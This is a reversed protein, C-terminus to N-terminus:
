YDGMSTQMMRKHLDLKHYFRLVESNAKVCSKEFDLVRLGDLCKARSLAVYSQGCEFVRSLSIEVCDLTMGQSKHISIAWALKLPIQKRTSINGGSFKFSWRIPKIEEEMGCRFKVIPYGDNDKQYGIVIGRAGNVLGKQVDLNKALMVQAGIKLNLKDPVPCMGNIQQTYVSDSDTSIFLKSEGNLKQLHHENIQNVDEKHTCLRTALIGDRQINQKATARLTTYVYDPCRGLRIQQLIDIFSKDSQRRVETLEINMQICKKWAKTQFCFNVKEKGKTVPPLQLFDGCMILQIGGFPQDNRRIVRAVAELKEFFEGDVMSIEDIVLHKCKRWQQAVQTRSALQVCHELTGRGSGIGAFAHLTTGGIHCAAVGTSATAFTHQPPLTGIIRKMLFSKGTGASGTFFVSRGRSVAELVSSQEKSLKVPIVSRPVVSVLKRAMKLGKPPQNEKNDDVRKRKGKPTFLDKELEKARAEHVTHVDKMTLPSIEDFTRQRESLLKKRDSIFGKQKGVELKTHMTRLFMMLKDPPCNSLMFQINRDPIRVTAKGDKVFKKFLKIERLAYKIDKKGYDVRLTVDNFENRGLSLSLSKYPTCKIVDGTKTLDEVVVTCTLLNMEM